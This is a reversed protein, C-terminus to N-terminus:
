QQKKRFRTGVQKNDIVDYLADPNNGNTIVMECDKEMCIRAANLKTIMGGTGQSTGAGEALKMIDATLENVEPIITADKHKRPDATYLGDIDSLLILLNAEVAAAVKAALTDNDGVAIEETAITDNENIVPIVELELLKNLTNIFNDYYEAEKFNDNTILLQAVNHHYESFLKDYIYMLECQGVAAAAQKTPMDKPRSKLGLKGVGMGIAGSSVMIIENGANKVDAIVKCLHEVRKINLHGSPHALTSTGIKIVLRM